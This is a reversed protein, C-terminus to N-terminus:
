VGRRIKPEIFDGPVAIAVVESKTKFGLRRQRLASLVVAFCIHVVLAVRARVVSM